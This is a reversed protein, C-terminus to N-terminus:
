LSARLDAIIKSLDIVNGVAEDEISEDISEHLAAREGDDLDHGGKAVVQNAAPASM